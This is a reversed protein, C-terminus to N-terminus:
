IPGLILINQLSRKLLSIFRYLITKNELCENDNCTDKYGSFYNIFTRKNKKCIPCIHSEKSMILDYAQEQTLQYNKGFYDYNLVMKSTHWINSKDSFQDLFYRQNGITKIKIQNLYRKCKINNM